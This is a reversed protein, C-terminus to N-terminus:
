QEKCHQLHNGYGQAAWVTAIVAQGFGKLHSATTSCGQSLSATKSTGASTAPTQSSYIIANTNTPLM